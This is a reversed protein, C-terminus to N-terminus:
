NYVTVVQYRSVVGLNQIGHEAGGLPFTNTTCPVLRFSLVEIEDQMAQVTRNEKGKSSANIKEHTCVGNPQGSVVSPRCASFFRTIMPAKDLPFMFDSTSMTPGVKKM